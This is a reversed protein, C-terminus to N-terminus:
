AYEVVKEAIITFIPGGDLDNHYVIANDHIYTEILEMPKGLVYDKAERISEFSKVAVGNQYVIFNKMNHSKNLQENRIEKIFNRGEWKQDM